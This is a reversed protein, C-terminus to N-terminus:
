AEQLIKFFYHTELAGDEALDTCHVANRVKDFGFKARLSNPRLVRAIEPDVPGALDRFREVVGAGTEGDPGAVEVAAFAGSTIEDVMMNFEPVVGKYVELFELANVRDLVFTQFGVVGFGAGQVGDLVLGLHEMASPKVLCLTTDELRSAAPLAFFAEAHKEAESASASAVVCEGFHSELEAALATMKGVAGEAVLSLGVSVGGMVDTVLAADGRAGYMATAAATPARCMKAKALAFGSKTAANIIKGLAGLAGPRVLAFTQQRASAFVSETHADGYEVVKLQRSYVVVVAGVFLDSAAVSPIRTKKLFARRNKIDYMEVSRDHPWYLFQYRYTLGAHPDFYEVIFAYKENVDQLPELGPLPPPFGFPRPRGM